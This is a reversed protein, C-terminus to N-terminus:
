FRDASLPDAIGRRELEAQLINCRECLYVGYAMREDTGNPSYKSLNWDEVFLQAIIRKDTWETVHRRLHMCDRVRARAIAAALDSNKDM